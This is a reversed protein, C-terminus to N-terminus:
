LSRSEFEFHAAAPVFVKLQRIRLKLGPHIRCIKRGSQVLTLSEARLLAHWLANFDNEITFCKNMDDAFTMM